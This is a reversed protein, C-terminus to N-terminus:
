LLRFHYLLILMKWDIKGIYHRINYFQFYVNQNKYCDRIWQLLFLFKKFIFYKLDSNYMRCFIDDDTSITCGSLDRLFSFLSSLAFEITTFFLFNHKVIKEKSFLTVKHSDVHVEGAWIRANKICIALSIEFFIEVIRSAKCAYKFNIGLLTASFSFYYEKRGYTFEDNTRNRCWLLHSVVRRLLKLLLHLHLKKEHESKVIYKM